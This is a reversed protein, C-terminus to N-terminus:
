CVDAEGDASRCCCSIKAAARASTGYHVQEPNAIMFRQRAQRIMANQFVADDLWDFATSEFLSDSPSPTTLSLTDGIDYRDFVATRLEYDPLQRHHRLTILYPYPNAM